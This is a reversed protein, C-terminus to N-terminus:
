DERRMKAGMSSTMANSSFSIAKITGAVPELGATM